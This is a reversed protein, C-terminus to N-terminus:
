TKEWWYDPAEAPEKPLPHIGREQFLSVVKEAAVAFAAEVSPTLKVGDDTSEPIIGVVTMSKPATGELGMAMTLDLFNIQHPSLQLSTSVTKFREGSLIHIEGPDGELDVADVIVLWDLKYLLSGLGLGVTGGDILQVNKPFEYKAELYKIVKIGVADDQQLVNGVGLLATNGTM